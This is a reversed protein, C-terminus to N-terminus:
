FETHMEWKVMRTADILDYEILNNPEYIFNFRYVGHHRKPPESTYDQENKVEASSPLSHDVDLGPRAKSRPFSESSV